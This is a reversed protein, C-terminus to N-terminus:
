AQLAEWRRRAQEVHRFAEDFAADITMETTDLLVADTARAMPADARGADRADRKLLDALTEAETRAEGRASTQLWRRRARVQPAADVYLKAPAQPAIVTGIDRGDLVAGGPQAAFDRQLDFLAARVAPLAAVRSAAEGGAASTLAPDDLRGLDLAQALAAARAGDDLDAGAELMAVGVARYLLGTDLHPLRYHRALRSAITGKGSAAAGDVAIVLGPKQTQAMHPSQCRPKGTALSGGVGM